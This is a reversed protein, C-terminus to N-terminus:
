NCVQYLSCAPFAHSSSANLEAIYNLHDSSLESYSLRFETGDVVPGNKLLSQSFHEPFSSVPDDQYAMSIMRMLQTGWYHVVQFSIPSCSLCQKLWVAMLLFQHTYSAQLLRSWNRCLNQRMPCQKFFSEILIFTLNSAIPTM